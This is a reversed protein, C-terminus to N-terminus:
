RHDELQKFKQFEPLKTMVFATRPSVPTRRKETVILKNIRLKQKDVSKIEFYFVITSIFLGIALVTFAAALPKLGLVRLGPGLVDHELFVERYVAGTRRAIVDRIHYDIFGNERLRSLVQNCPALLWPQVAFSVYYSGMSEAMVRYAELDKDRIESEPFFILNIVRGLIAYKGGLIKNHRDEENNEIRFHRNLQANWKNQPKLSGIYTPLDGERGWTLNSEIFQQTTDIRPEYNLSSLRAALSSSYATVIHVGIMNWLQFQLRFGQWKPVVSLGLMQAMLVSWTFAFSRYRKHVRPNIWSRMYVYVTMTLIMIFLVLWVEPSLPRTLAWFSTYTKPRPVLFRVDVQTWPITLNTFEYQPLKLWIGSFAIDVEKQILQGLIGGYWGTANQRGYRYPSNRNRIAYTFNLREAIMQFLKIEIGDFEPDGKKGVFIEKKQGNVTRITTTNLYSLPKNYDTAVQLLRGQFNLVEQKRKFGEYTPVKKFIRPVLHNESLIWLGDKAAVNVNAHEYMSVNFLETSGEVKDDIVFVIQTDSIQVPVSEMVKTVNTTDSLLMLYGTCAYERRNILTEFPYSRLFIGLLHEVTPSTGSFYTNTCISDSFSIKTLTIFNEESIWTLQDDKVLMLDKDCAVFTFTLTLCVLIKSM